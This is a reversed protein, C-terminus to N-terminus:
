GACDLVMTERSVLRSEEDGSNADAVCKASQHRAPHCVLGPGVGHDDDGSADGQSGGAEEEHCEKRLEPDQKQVANEKSEHCTFLM